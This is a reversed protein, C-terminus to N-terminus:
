NISLSFSLSPLAERGGEEGGKKGREEGKKTKEAV